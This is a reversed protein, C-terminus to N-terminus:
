EFLGLQQAFWYNLSVFLRVDQSYINNKLLQGQVDVSFTEIPRVIVGLSGAIAENRPSSANLKYSSYTLGATPMITRECLPYTGQVSVSALEGPHGTTGRYTLAVYNHAIGVTYRNSNDDDYKVYAGRLFVRLAPMLVYDCGAEFEDVSSHTFVSFFSNYDLRPTRHIFDGSVFLEDTAYVRAGLQSRLTRNFNLDYDYRGYFSVSSIHYSADGSAYQEKAATPDVYFTVPNFLSDPRVTWYGPKERFRNVYSVGLRGGEIPTTVVQGGVVFNNKLPGWSEISLDAPVRAGGYVTVRIKKEALNLNTLAGDLTGNGVGAFYPLRGVSLDVVNGINKWRGYLYFLRYDPTEDLDKKLTAAAQFHTHVSFNGQAVDFIASQFGRLFKKSANVTDFQEWTYLSTIFRGNM